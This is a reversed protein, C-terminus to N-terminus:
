KIVIKGFRLDIEKVIGEEMKLRPLVLQLARVQVGLDKEASFLVTVGSITAIINNNLIVPLGSFSIGNKTLLQVLEYNPARQFFDLPIKRQQKLYVFGVIGVLILVIVLILVVKKVM